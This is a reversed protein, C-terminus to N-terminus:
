SIRTIRVADAEVRGNALNSLEVKLTGSSISVNSLTQWVVGSSDATGSPSAQQNIAYTSLAKTGDYITYPANTARNGYPPWVIQVLYTGAPLATFTWDALSSGTGPVAEEDMNGAHGYGAWQQWSGTTIFGSGAANITQVSGVAFPPPTVATGPAAIIRVADAEVRGNANNTIEVTLTGSADTVVALQQWVTGASDATGSPSAQQNIAYTGLSTSGDYITYPTNTARNGYAPWTIQVIYQTNPLGTFTYDAKSSGTGAVAEDDISGAHGYGAWQQWSGTTSFGASGVSITQVAAPTTPPPTVATGPAAIIRVADAEVRGNANNTIEVTLTGSADTVVALQQWVTGASDATGSPSAQQNIAYTGLSTSGDYITYPTNTARNGYAPWTIQVIYQTNPLGTFTYDAKSSGTGAVAEDDISGAHGYGAWQQWSGTTSFGASGVSITQVAAPTTPPPTVATGPAAIIRVADAEVRGNANNTIEVTLTGSADTVVALQQWVTGASDATGSPSAQQNIAYTGLSTSGDYITYPTNTARNGYAPWTIQVIYQTNPLGTFTYDAKSSGTGAVAEDDISGAHGYGAWQQWSGTTSFGASGVSITQVPAPNVPTLTLSTPEYEYVYGTSQYFVGLVTKIVLTNLGAKLTLNGLNFSGNQSVSYTGLTTGDLTSIQIQAPLYGPAPYTPEINSGTTLRLTYSGAVAVNLQWYNSQNASPRSFGQGLSDAAVSLSTAATASVATGATPTVAAAAAVDALGKYRPSASPNSMQSFEATSWEYQPSLAGFPGNYFDAMDGGAAYWDVYHQFVIQEMRPDRTALLANQGATSTGSLSPGGEYAISKMGYYTAITSYNAASAIAQTEDAALSNLISTASSYDSASMYTADGLGYFYNKALGFTADFWPLNQTYYQWNDEQWGLVPRIRSYTPDAGVVSRFDNVIQMTRELYRRNALATPDTTGDANLVSGGAAVEEKAAEMNVAYPNYIGGWVENSYELYVHLNPNLGAYSVGDVTDGNQILSALQKVYDDSANAPINIWMDTNSANALAVEWEWAEGPEANSASIQSRADPLTRQSWQVQVLHGSSDLQETYGNAGDTNLYRISNFPQLASLMQNTFVQTTNAAYGPQILKVNTVGAGTASAPNVTGSFNILLFPEVNHPVVLDATTTNTAANYVQNQVTFIQLWVPPSVTAQGQFSLHYTGGIDPPTAAPDPGNWPQNVREDLVEIQADSTPWGQANETLPTSNYQSWDNSEKMLDVFGLSGALNIGLPGAALLDRRDLAELPSSAIVFARRRRSARRGDGRLRFNFM